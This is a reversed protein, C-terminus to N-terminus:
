ARNLWVTLVFGVGAALLATVLYWALKSRRRRGVAAASAALALSSRAATAGAWCMTRRVGREAAAAARRVLLGLDAIRSGRRDPRRRRKVLVVRLYWALESRKRRGAVAASTALAFSRAATASAWRMTRRVGREAAAAARRVLLGLDGIRSGGRDPRGRRKVLVVSLSLSLSLSLVALITGGSVRGSRSTLPNSVRSRGPGRGRV